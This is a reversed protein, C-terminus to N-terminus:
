KINVKNVSQEVEKTLGDILLAVMKDGRRLHNIVAILDDSYSSVNSTIVSYNKKFKNYSNIINRYPTGNLCSSVEDMKKNISQFLDSLRESKTLLEMSLDGLSSENIGLYNNEM